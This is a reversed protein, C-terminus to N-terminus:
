TGPLSVPLDSRVAALRTKRDAKHARGAVIMVELLTERAVEPLFVASLQRQPHIESSRLPTPTTSPITTTLLTGSSKPRIQRSLTLEKRVEQNQQHQISKTREINQINTKSRELDPLIFTLLPFLLVLSVKKREEIWLAECGVSGKRDEEGVQRKKDCHSHGRPPEWLSGSGSSANTTPIAISM